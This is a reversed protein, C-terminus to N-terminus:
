IVKYIKEKQEPSLETSNFYWATLVNKIEIYKKDTKQKSYKLFQVSYKLFEELNQERFYKDCLYWLCWCNDPNKNVEDKLMKLYLEPREVKRFDQNHIIYANPCYIEIEQVNYRNKFILHEYIPQEWTYEFRKHIKNSPINDPYGVRPVKSYIDLRDTAINNVKPNSAYIKEIEEPTNLTFWEDMDPSLCFDVDLPVMELNYNRAINFIWPTFTKQEIILGSDHKAYEQLAEWTGDTSGTDLIVRYKYGNEKSHYFMWNELHKIENKCITYVALNM